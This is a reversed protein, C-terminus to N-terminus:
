EEVDYREEIEFTNFGKKQGYNILYERKGDIENFINEILEGYQQFNDFGVELGSGLDRLLENVIHIQFGKTIVQNMFLISNKYDGEVIKFWITVMPDNKKSETLEMKEIKVEYSHGHPVVAYDGGEGNMAHEIDAKLGELDMTKNFKTYDM